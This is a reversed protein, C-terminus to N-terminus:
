RRDPGGGPIPWPITLIEADRWAVSVTWKAIQRRVKHEIGRRTMASLFPRLEVCGGPFEIAPDNEPCHEIVAHWRSVWRGYRRITVQFPPRSM